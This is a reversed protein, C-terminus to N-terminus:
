TLGSRQFELLARYDEETDADLFAGEDDVPLDILTARHAHVVPKAGHMPDAARLEDFVRRDFIVPHGHRGDRSPRVIPARRTQWTDVLARVTEARVLPVDVLAIAVAELRDHDVADLGVVISSLQGRSWQTNHVVHVRPDHDPWAQAVIDPYAGTVVTVRSLGASLLTRGLRALFTDGVDSLPLSAKPRGMRSSAGAALVIAEIV